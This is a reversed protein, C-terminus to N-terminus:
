VQAQLWPASSRLRWFTEAGAAGIHMEDVLSFSHDESSSRM